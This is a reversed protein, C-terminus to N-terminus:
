QRCLVSAIAGDKRTGLMFEVWEGVYVPKSIEGRKETDINAFMMKVAEDQQVGLCRLGRIMDDANIKGDHDTDYIDFFSGVMMEFDKQFLDKNVEVLQEFANAYQDETIAEGRNLMESVEFVLAANDPTLGGNKGSNALDQGEKVLIDWGECLWKKLVSYQPDQLEYERKFIDAIEEFDAKSMRANGKINNM